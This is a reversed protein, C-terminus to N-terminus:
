LSELEAATPNAICGKSRATEMWTELAVVEAAQLRLGLKSRRWLVDEATMAWEEHMLYRVERETLGAGFSQGMDEACRADGLMREARTGYLRLWRRLLAKHEARLTWGATGIYVSM